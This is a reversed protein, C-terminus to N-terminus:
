ELLLGDVKLLTCSRILAPPHSSEENVGAGIGLELLKGLVYDWARSRYALRWVGQSGGGVM